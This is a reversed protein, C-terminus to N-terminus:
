NTEDEDVITEYTNVFLISEDILACAKDYDEDPSQEFVARSVLDNLVIVADNLKEYANLLLDERHTSPMPKLQNVKGKWGCISCTAHNIDDSYPTGSINIPGALTVSMSTNNCEPCARHRENWIKSEVRSQEISKLLVPCDKYDHDGSCVICESM